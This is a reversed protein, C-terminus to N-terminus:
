GSRLQATGKAAGRWLLSLCSLNGIWWFLGRFQSWRDDSVFVYVVGYALRALTYIACTGNIVGMPVRSHMAFIVSGFFLTYGEVSNASAGECRQIMDVQERTLKGERIAADAYKNLDQRPSANHDIGYIQKITRSSLIGYAYFWNWTLFGATIYYPSLPM